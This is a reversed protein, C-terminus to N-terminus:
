RAPPCYPPREFSTLSTDDCVDQQSSAALGIVALAALGAAAKSEDFRYRPKYNDAAHVASRAFLNAQEVDDHVLKFTPSNPYFTGAYFEEFSYDRKIKPKRKKWPRKDRGQPLESVDIYNRAFVRITEPLRGCQMEIIKSFAFISKESNNMRQYDPWNGTPVYLGYPALHSAAYKYNGPELRRSQQFHPLILVPQTVCVEGEVRANLASRFLKRQHPVIYPKNLGNTCSEYGMPFQPENVVKNGVVVFSNLKYAWGEYKMCVQDALKQRKEALAGEPLAFIGLLYLFLIVVHKRLM